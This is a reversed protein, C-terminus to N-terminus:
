AYAGRCDPACLTPAGCLKIFRCIHPACMEVSLGSRENFVLLLGIGSSDIATVAALNLRTAGAKVAWQVPHRAALSLKGAARARGNQPPAITVTDASHGLFALLADREADGVRVGIHVGNSISAVEGTVTWVKDQKAAAITIAAGPALRVPQAARLGIGQDSIDGIRSHEIAVRRSGYILEAQLPQALYHRLSERRDTRAASAPNMM